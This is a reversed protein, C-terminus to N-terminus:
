GAALEAYIQVMAAQDLLTPGRGSFHFLGTKPDRARAWAEDAFREAEARDTRGPVADTLEKVDRFFIALFFPPEGSALPDGIKAEAADATREADALYGPQGTARFLRVGAAIMAGQNYSWTHGDVSGALDIHDALLGSPTGLCRKTWDYARQAWALDSASGSRQYLALALLAANATTVTNRDHNAGM